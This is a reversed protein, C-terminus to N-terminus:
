AKEITSHYVITTCPLRIEFPVLICAIYIKFNHNSRCQDNPGFGCDASHVLTKSVELYIPMLLISQM